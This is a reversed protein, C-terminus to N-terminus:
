SNGNGYGLPSFLNYLSSIRMGSISQSNKYKQANQADVYKQYEDRGSNKMRALLLPLTGTRGSAALTNAAQRYAAPDMRNQVYSDYSMPTFMSNNMKNLKNTENLKLMTDLGGLALRGTSGQPLGFTNKLWDDSSKAMGKITDGLSFNSSTNTPISSTQINDISPVTTSAPASTGTGINELTSPAANSGTAGSGFTDQLGGSPTIGYSDLGTQAPNFANDIMAGSNANALGQLGEESLNAMQYNTMGGTWDSASGTLTPNDGFSSTMGTDTLPTGVPASMDGLGFSEAGGSAIDGMGSTASSIDGTGSLANPAFDAGGQSAFMAADTTGDPGITAGQTFSDGLGGRLFSGVASGVAGMLFGRGFSGGNVSSMIGGALGAGIVGGITAASVGLITGGIATGIATGIASGIAGVAIAIIPM